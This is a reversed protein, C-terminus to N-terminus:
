HKGTAEPRFARLRGGLAAFALIAVATVPILAQPDHM